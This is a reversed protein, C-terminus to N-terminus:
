SNFISNIVRKIASEKKEKLEYISSNKMKLADLKEQLYKSSLQIKKAQFENM